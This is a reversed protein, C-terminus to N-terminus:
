LCKNFYISTKTLLSYINHTLHLAFIKNQPGRLGPKPTGLWRADAKSYLNSGNRNTVTLSQNLGLYYLIHRTSAMFQNIGPLFLMQCFRVLFRAVLFNFLACFLQSPGKCKISKQM